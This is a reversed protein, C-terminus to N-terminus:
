YPNDIVESMVHQLKKEDAIRSTISIKHIIDQNDILSLVITGLPEKLWYFNRSTGAGWRYNIQNEKKEVEQKLIITEKEFSDLKILEEITYRQYSEQDSFSLVKANEGPMIRRLYKKVTLPTGGVRRMAIIQVQYNTKNEFYIQTDAYLFPSFCLLGLISMKM